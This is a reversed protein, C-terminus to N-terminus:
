KEPGIKQKVRAETQKVNLKQSIVQEILKEQDDEKLSLVCSCSAGTIKGELRNIVKPALKLLRM